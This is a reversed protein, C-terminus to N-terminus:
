APVTGATPTWLPADPSMRILAALPNARRRDHVEDWIRLKLAHYADLGRAPDTLFEPSCTVLVFCASLEDTADILQRLVEYADMVAPKSYYLGETVDTRRSELCRRIDLDLVLGSRGARTLWRALSFLMHRANHRGIKQFILAEKLISIRRLEGRLWEIVDGRTAQTPASHDLQAQCLRIMAIRFEQALQYDRFLDEQLRRNFDRRLENVDYENIRALSELDLEAPDHPLQFRLEHLLRVVEFRALVDWDVQRAVEFFLRDIMHVKVEAADVRAYVYGESAATQQLTSRVEAPSAGDLPVAFKVAAGGARVFGALYEDRVFALYDAPRIM